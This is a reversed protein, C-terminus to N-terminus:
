RLLTIRDGERVGLTEAANGYNRAIRLNGFDTVFAVWEGEAVDSYTTGLTVHFERDKFRIRFTDGKELKLEDVQGLGIDTDINGYDPSVRLVEGSVEAAEDATVTLSGLVLMLMMVARKM